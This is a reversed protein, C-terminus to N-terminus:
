TTQMERGTTSLLLPPSSRVALGALPLFSIGAIWLWCCGYMCNASSFNRRKRTTHKHTYRSSRKDHGSGNAQIPSRGKYEVDLGWWTRLCYFSGCVCGRRDGGGEKTQSIRYDALIFGTLSSPARGQVFSRLGRLKEGKAAAQAGREKEELPKM